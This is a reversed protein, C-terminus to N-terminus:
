RREGVPPWERGKAYEKLSIPEGPKAPCTWHHRLRKGSPGVSFQPQCLRSGAECTARTPVPRERERQIAAADAPSEVRGNGQGGAGVPVVEIREVLALEMWTDANKAALQRGEPTDMFTRRKIRRGDQYTVWVELYRAAAQLDEEYSRDIAADSM